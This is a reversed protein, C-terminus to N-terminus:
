RQAAAQFRCGRAGSHLADQQGDHRVSVKHQRRDEGLGRRRAVAERGSAHHDLAAIGDARRVQYDLEGDREFESDLVVLEPFLM